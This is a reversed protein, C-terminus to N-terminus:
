PQGLVLVEDFLIKSSVESDVAAFTMWYLVILFSRRLSFMASVKAM